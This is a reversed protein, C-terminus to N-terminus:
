GTRAHQYATLRDDGLRQGINNGSTNKIHSTGRNGTYRTVPDGAGGAYEGIAHRYQEHVALGDTYRITCGQEDYVGLNPHDTSLFPKHVDPIRKLKVVTTARRLRIIITMDPIHNFLNQKGRWAFSYVPGVESATKKLQYKFGITIFQHDSRLEHYVSCQLLPETIQNFHTIYGHGIVVRRQLNRNGIDDTACLLWLHGL